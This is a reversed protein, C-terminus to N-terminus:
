ESDAGAKAAVTAAAVAPKVDSANKYIALWTPASAAAVLLCVGVTILMTRVRKSIDKHVEEVPEFRANPTYNKRMDERIEELEQVVRDFDSKSVYNTKLDNRIEKSFTELRVDFNDIKKDIKTFNEIMSSFQTELKILLDRDSRDNGSM